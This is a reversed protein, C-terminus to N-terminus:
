KDFGNQSGPAGHLDIFMHIGHQGAWQAAKFLYPYQGTPYPEGGTNEIAWIGIPVRIHNLGLAAIQAIDDEVIWTDWHPRLRNSAEVSGFKTGYTFEDIVGPGADDYIGPTIWPETVLWGGLNVGRIPQAPARKAHEHQTLDLTRRNATKRNHPSHVHSKAYGYASLAYLLPLLLKVKM